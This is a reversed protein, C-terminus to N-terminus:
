RKKGGGLLRELAGGIGKVAEGTGQVGKQGLTGVGEAVGRISVGLTEALSAAMRVTLIERLVFQPNNVDGELTFNLMIRDDHAKLFNIVASRPVGMFTDMAGSAPAFELNSIVVKGPARLRNQRVESQLDLDLAGRQVRAEAAKVLFPQLAVMDVSRLETKVSSDKTAIEAWGSVQARGDRQIGKVVASLDFQSKGSLSPVTVHRVTAQMKELRIRLPPQAVTADFFEMVGDELNVRSIAVARALPGATAKGNPAPSELLSPVVLLRGDKTRLASLYPRVVTISHLRVTASFISWLRPVIWVQEARLTDAAPWGKRGKIRLGEVGVGSWGVKM